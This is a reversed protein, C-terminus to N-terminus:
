KSGIVIANKGSSKAIDKVGNKEETKIRISNTAEKTNKIKANNLGNEIGDIYNKYYSFYDGSKLYEGKQAGPINDRPQDDARGIITKAVGNLDFGYLGRKDETSGVEGYNALDGFLRLEASRQNGGLMVKSDYDYDVNSYV